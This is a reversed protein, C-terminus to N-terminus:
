MNRTGLQPAIEDMWCLGLDLYICTGGSGGNRWCTAPVVSALRTSALPGAPLM